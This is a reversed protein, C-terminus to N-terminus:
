IGIPCEFAVCPRVVRFGLNDTRLNSVGSSRWSLRFLSGAGSWAEGRGVFSTGLDDNAFSYWDTATLINADPVKNDSLWEWVNGNMDALGQPTDGSPSKSGVVATATEGSRGVVKSADWIDGYAYIRESAGPQGKAAAYEWEVETPLRYGNTSLNVIQGSSNYAPTLGEKVSLWNSFAVAEYWSVGVRPQNLGTFGVFDAPGIYARAWGNTTWYSNNSYGGDDIFAQFQSNTVEHKSMRFSYSITQPLNPMPGYTGDGMKFTDGASNITILTLPTIGGGLPVGGSSSSGCAGLAFASLITILILLTKKNM